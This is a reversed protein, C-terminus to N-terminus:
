VNHRRLSYALFFLLAWAGLVILVGDRFAADGVTGDSMVPNGANKRRGPINLNGPMGLLDPRGSDDESSVPM